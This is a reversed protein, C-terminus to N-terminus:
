RKGALSKICLAICSEMDAKIECEWLIIASWGLYHLAALSRQDREINQSFKRLWFDSNSKPVTTFKCGHRHWFCGNVFLVTKYKPFVMDPTGPLDRRHLQYRFGLKHLAQRIEMEPITNKGKIGSMMRSRVEQTVKDM